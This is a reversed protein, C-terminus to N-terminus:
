DKIRWPGYNADVHSCPLPRNLPFLLHFQLIPKFSLYQHESDQGLFALCVPELQSDHQATSHWRQVTLRKLPSPSARGFQSITIVWGHFSYLSLPVSSNQRCLIINSFLYKTNRCQKRQPVLQWALSQHTLFLLIHCFLSYGKSHCQSPNVPISKTCIM